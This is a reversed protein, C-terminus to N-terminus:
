MDSREAHVEVPLDSLCRHLRELVMRMSPSSLTEDIVIRRLAPDTMVQATFRAYWSPRGLEALHETLPCVLCAVWDRIDASEEDLEALLRLRVQEIRVFHKRVIARVLDARTGFHYGVAANNGQGAAESVQRNSVAYVGQEAYLREAASLISERTASVQEARVTRAAM